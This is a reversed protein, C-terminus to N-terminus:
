QSTLRIRLFRRILTNIAYRIRVEDTTADLSTVTETAIHTQWNDPTPSEEIIQQVGDYTKRRPFILEIYDVGSDEITQSALPHQPDFTATSKNYFFEELNVLVDGDNNADPGWLTAEKTPDTIDALSFLGTVWAQYTSQEDSTITATDSNNPAAAITGTTSSTLTIIVSEPLEQSGDNTVDIPITVSNAGSPIQATGSLSSFDAGNTATGTITYDVTIGGVPAVGASLAITFLADDTPEAGSADTAVISVSTSLADNDTIIATAMAIFTSLPYNAADATSTVAHTIRSTHSGEGISDDIARVTLTQASTNTRSFSQTSAYDVGNLSLESQADATATIQVAGSPVSDLAVTYTDSAGAESLTLGDGQNLTIGSVSAAVQIALGSLVVDAASTASISIDINGSGTSTVPVAYAELSQSSSGAEANVWLEAGTTTAQVFPSPNDVGSGTITVTQGITVGGFSEVAFVYVNYRTTPALDSWTFDIPVTSTRHLHTFNINALSPTHIPITTASPNTSGSAWSGGNRNMSLDVISITGDEQILNSLTPSGTWTAGQNWNNPITAGSEDFDVGVLSPFADNDTLLALLSELPLSLPYAASTSSTIIHAITGSHNGEPITDDVARVTISQALTNNFTVMHSAAFNIGDVSVETDADAEVAITVSGNPASNLNLQYNGSAGGEAASANTFTVGPATSVIERLAFGALGYGDGLPNVTVQVEGLSSAAVVKEYTELNQASSGTSDNVMLQQEVLNQTFTPLTTAGSIEVTQSLARTADNDLGFVFVGYDQGPVLDSWTATVSSNGFSFGDIAGLNPLHSPKTSALAGASNSGPGGSGYNIALDVGTVVGDDRTMNMFSTSASLGQLKLGQWNPTASTDNFDFDLGIVPVSENDVIQVPVANVLLGVPYNGDISTTVSQTITSSHGGEALVDDIARVFITQASLSNFVVNAAGGWSTGDTSIEIGSGVTATVTVAGSPATNLSMEYADLIGDETVLTSGSSEAVTVGPAASDATVTFDNDTIDFFIHANAQVKIRAATTDVNPVTVGESGDNATTAIFLPFTLGGDASFYIDVQSANISNGTTGAVNWTINQSSGGTWTQGGNPATVAFAAGTDVVTLVTDDCASGGSASSNDRVTARFNLSRSTTPLFEGPNSTNALLDSLRPFTRKPNTSPPWSRFLPSSGNDSLPLGMFPGLDIQEWAYTISDGDADTASATLDFPTNAPITYDLGANVTPITNGTNTSQNPAAFANSAIYTEMQELSKTHFYLDSDNQLNDAGCIGAYSMITSGSAPEYANGGSRNGICSGLANANFTHQAGFQHGIEHIVVGIFGQSSASPDVTESVGRAKLGTQGVIGLSAQGGGNSTVLGFVHGIDYNNTGIEADLTTQNSTQQGSRDGPTFPDTTGDTYIIKDLEVDPILEFRIALEKEYVKNVEGIIDKIANRAGAKTGGHHQTFEGTAAIAIRYIRLQDGYTVAAIGFLSAVLALAIPYLFHLRRPKRNM